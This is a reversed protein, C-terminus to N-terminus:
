PDSFIIFIALESLDSFFSDDFGLHTAYNKILHIEFGLNKYKKVVEPTIAVRREVEKNEANSGIIM